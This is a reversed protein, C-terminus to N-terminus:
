GKNTHQKDGRPKKCVKCRRDKASIPVWKHRDKGGRAKAAPGKLIQGPVYELLSLTLDQRVREGSANRVQELWAIDQIVWRATQDGRGAPATVVLRPPEGDDAPQGWSKLTAVNREVSLGAEFRDLSLPLSWTVAPTGNWATMQPRGPRDLTEWGGVGGGLEDDGIQEFELRPTPKGQRHIEVTGIATM